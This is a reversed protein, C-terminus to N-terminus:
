IFVSEMLFPNELINNQDTIDAANIPGPVTAVQEKAPADNPVENSQASVKEVRAVM